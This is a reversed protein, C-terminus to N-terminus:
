TQSTPGSHDPSGNIFKDLQILSKKLSTISTLFMDGHHEQYGYIQCFAYMSVVDGCCGIVTALAHETTMKTQESAIPKGSTDVLTM